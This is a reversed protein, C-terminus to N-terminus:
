CRGSTTIGPSVFVLSGLFVKFSPILILYPPKLFAGLYGQTDLLGYVHASSHTHGPFVQPPGVQEGRASRSCRHFVSILTLISNYGALANFAHGLVCVCLTGQFLTFFRNSLSMKSFKQGIM